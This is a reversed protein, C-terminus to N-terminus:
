PSGPTMSSSITENYLVRHTDYLGTNKFCLYTPERSGDKLVPLLVSQIWEDDHKAVDEQCIRVIRMGNKQACVMKFVDREIDMRMCWIQEFHQAGDTEVLTNIEPIFCDFELERGTDPNVCWSPRYHPISQPFESKITYFVRRESAHGIFRFEEWPYEPFCARALEFTSAYKSQLGSPLLGASHYLVSLERGKLIEEHLFTRQNELKDWAGNPASVFKWFKWLYDPYLYTLLAITSGQFHHVLLGDGHAAKLLPQTLRYMDECTPYGKQRIEIDFWREINGRQLATGCWFGNPVQSFKWEYWVHDPYVIKLLGIISEGCRNTWGTGSYKKLDDVRIRYCDDPGRVSEGVCVEENWWRRINEDLHWWRQPAQSFKWEKWPVEPYVLRMLKVVSEDVQNTAKATFFGSGGERNIHAGTVAYWDEDSTMRNKGKFWECWRRINEVLLVGKSKWFPRTFEKGISEQFTAM